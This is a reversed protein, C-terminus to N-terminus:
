TVWKNGSGGYTAGPGWVPKGQYYYTGDPGIATGNDYYEWGWGPEGPDANNTISKVFGFLGGGQSAGTATTGSAPRAAKMIMWVAVGALGLIVLDETKM